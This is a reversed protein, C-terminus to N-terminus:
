FKKMSKKWRENAKKAARAKRKVEPRKRRCEEWLRGGELRHAYTPLYQEEVLHKM